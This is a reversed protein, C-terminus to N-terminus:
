VFPSAPPWLSSVVLESPLTLNQIARIDFTM